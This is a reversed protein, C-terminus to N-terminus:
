TSAALHYHYVLAAHRSRLPGAGSFYRPRHASAPSRFPSFDYPTLVNSHMRSPAWARHGEELEAILRTSLWFWVTLGIDLMQYRSIDCIAVCTCECIYLVTSHADAARWSCDLEGVRERAWAVVAVSLDVHLRCLTPPPSCARITAPRPGATRDPRGARPPTYPAIARARWVTLHFLTLLLFLNALGRARLPKKKQKYTKRTKAAVSGQSSALLLCLTGVNAVQEM